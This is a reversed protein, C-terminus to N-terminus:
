AADRVRFEVGSKLKGNVLADTVSIWYTPQAPDNEFVQMVVHDALGDRIFQLQRLYQSLTVKAEELDTVDEVTPGGKGFTLKLKLKM